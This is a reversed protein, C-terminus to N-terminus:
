DKTDTRARRRARPRPAGAPGVATGPVPAAFTLELGYRVLTGEDRVEADQVQLTWPGKASKGKFGALGPTTLVDFTRKLNRTPGGSRNHLVVSRSHMGPPPVLTVVLDGIYTHLLDVHVSLSAISQAEGVELSVRVTQLDPLPQDFNRTIVVSNRPRPQALKVATEANLRGYGYFQSQGDADYQGGQPDIKDCARRLIDRVEQWRLDPNAALVLAAVGAAGPCASSTGGFSNTYNGATYGRAGTARDTWDTTWIGSTLPEPHNFPAHGFDNSPFACWVAKGFDSYVSRKGRDNCAAVATVREYSAYGDHDVSENGNGAAFLIVCGKGGRGQTTAYDIALRTSAPLPTMRNHRPDNPEFWDGDEPGWSCSIVDAGHDAAWRFANAEQQSGLGSTLRIPMLKARPAVGSASHLGDACAILLV